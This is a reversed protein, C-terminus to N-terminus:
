PIEHFYEQINVVIVHFIQIIDLGDDAWKGYPIWFLLIYAV